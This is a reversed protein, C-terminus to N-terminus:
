VIEVIFRWVAMPLARCGRDAVQKTLVAAAVVMAVQATTERYRDVHHVMAISMRTNRIADVEHPLAPLNAMATFTTM